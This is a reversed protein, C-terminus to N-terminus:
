LPAIPWSDADVHTSIGDGTGNTVGADDDPDWADVM